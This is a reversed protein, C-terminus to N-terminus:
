GLRLPRALHRRARTPVEWWVAAPGPVEADGARRGCARCKWVGRGDAGRGKAKMARGCCAAPKARRPAAAVIQLKELNVTGERVVSGYAVVSDGPALSAVRDRFAGTPAYAALTARGTADEVDVLVHGGPIRRPAATVTAALRAGTRAELAACTRDRLHDDTAHNTRFLTWEAGREPGLVDRLALLSRPDTGRLGWLVPCPSAPAMVIEGTEPDACDFVAPERDLKAALAADLDRPTGWRAADRYSVLEWSGRQAPWALAALAGLRGRGGAWARSLRGDLHPAAEEWEVIRTVAAEYLAAPPPARAVVLGPSTGPAGIRAWREVVAAARTLVDEPDPGERAASPFAARARGGIRAAPLPDGAGRGIALAVAGNGRTKWPVAPNLRVLRPLDILDWEPFAELLRNALHTTCGGERSDTDDVGM